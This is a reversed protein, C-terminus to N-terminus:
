KEQLSGSPIYKSEGYTSLAPPKHNWSEMDDVAGGMLDKKGTKTSEPYGWTTAEPPIVKQKSENNKKEENPTQKPPTGGKSEVSTKTGEKKMDVQGVEIPPRISTSQAVSKVKLIPKPSSNSEPSESQIRGPSKPVPSSKQNLQLKRRSDLRQLVAM